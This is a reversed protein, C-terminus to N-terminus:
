TGANEAFGQLLGGAEEVRRMEVSHRRIPSQNDHTPWTSMASISVLIGLASLESRSPALAVPLYGVM